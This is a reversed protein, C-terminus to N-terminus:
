PTGPGVLHARVAGPDFIGPPVSDDANVAALWLDTLSVGTRGESFIRLSDLITYSVGERSIQTVHQPIQCDAGPTCAMAVEAAFAAAAMRGGEPPMAGTLYHVTFAGPDTDDTATPWRYGGLRVLWRNGLLTWDTGGVLSVGDVTVDLVAAIAWSGALDIRDRRACACPRRRCSCELCVSRTRECLGPWRKRSLRYLIDSAYTISFPLTDTDVEPHCRTVEETTCWDDCPGDDAGVIAGVYIWRSESVILGATGAFTYQWAGAQNVTIVSEWHGVDPNLLGANPSTLVTTTGDPAVVTLVVTGPNTAVGDSDVFRAELTTTEGVDLTQM